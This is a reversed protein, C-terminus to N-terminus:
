AGQRYDKLFDALRGLAEALTEKDPLFVVRFHDPRDWNFGTGQV